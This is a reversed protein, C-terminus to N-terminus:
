LKDILLRNQIITYLLSVSSLLKICNFLFIRNFDLPLLLLNKYLLILYILKLLILKVIKIGRQSQVKM